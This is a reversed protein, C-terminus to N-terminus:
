PTWVREIELEVELALGVAAAARRFDEIERLSLVRGARAALWRDLVQYGGIRHRWVEPEIGEFCLGAANVVVRGADADYVPRRGLKVGGDGACLVRPERLREARLLHLEVLTAGLAGLREFLRADEPFPIRPFGARLFPEYDKRYAPSHLVAYVYFFIAEPSPAEGWAEGLRRWLVAGLNPASGGFLSDPALRLPFVYNIDYASVAKHGIMRDTVFAASRDRAQRPLVLGLNDGDLLPRMGERRPRDVLADTYLIVRRDFPRVLIERVESRWAGDALLRRAREAREAGLRFPPEAGSKGMWRLAARLGEIREELDDRDFGIAVADRATLVGVSRVPFIEPLPVGRAYEEDRGAGGGAFLWDGARPRVETWGTSEADRGDLWRHKRDRSGWLEAHLVRQPLGPRKVLIVIAAGQGVGNFVNEDPAGDPSTERKRRNGHLDLVYIEEFSAMLSRRLGRFTPNELFGHNTVFCLIGEGNEDIKKQGFRLFKVYDDRLWKPNREGLPEGDVKLYSEELLGDISTVENASHGSWPPNGLVVAVRLEKKIHGAERAEQSLADTGPFWSQELEEAELANTLYLGVRQEDALPRGREAFFLRAKLHGIVYPAMMLEFAHFHPLLHDRVLAAIGGKGHSEAYAEMATDFAEVLFTLTGAAPDLLSARPDALGDAWGFRSRLLAHVSRVMYSVVPRPTYYVGRRKRLGKDYAELFTEYFHQVPDKGHRLFGRSIIPRIPAVALLDVLDEVIWVLGGPLRGLSIVEFVDRLIGSGAPIHDIVTQRSFAGLDRLRAALLGYAITQAYLDAFEAEDLQARLHGRFALLLGSVRSIEGREREERLLERVRDALVRARSALAAALWAGGGPGPTGGFSFFRDLVLRVAELSEPAIGARAEVVGGRFLRVELFNTLLLNPFTRLYRRV